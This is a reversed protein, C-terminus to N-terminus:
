EILDEEPHPLRWTAVVGDRECILVGLQELISLTHQLMARDLESAILDRARFSGPMRVAKLWIERQSVSCDQFIGRMAPLVEDETPARSGPDEVRIPGKFVRALHAQLADDLLGGQRGAALLAARARRAIETLDDSSPGPMPVNLDALGAMKLKSVRTGSAGAELGRRAEATQFWGWLFDSRFVDGRVRALGNGFSAQPPDGEYVAATGLATGVRAVLLDDGGLMPVRATTEAVFAPAGLDINGHRLDAAGILPIAGQDVASESVGAALEAAEGLRIREQGVAARAFATGLFGYIQEFFRRRLLAAMDLHRLAEAGVAWRESLVDPIETAELTERGLRRRVTGVMYQALAERVAKRRLFAWIRESEGRAHPRLVMLETSVLVSGGTEPVIALKGNEMSPSIQAFLIDGPFALRRHGPVEDLNEIPLPSVTASRPDIDALAVISRPESPSATPPNITVLDGLRTM